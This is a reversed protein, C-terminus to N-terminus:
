ECLKFYEAFNDLTYAPGVCGFNGFNTQIEWEEASLMIADYTVGSTWYEEGDEVYDQICQVKCRVFTAKMDAGCIPCYPTEEYPKEYGDYSVTDPHEWGCATCKGDLWRGRRGPASNSAPFQEILRKGFDCITGASELKELLAKREVYEPAKQAAQKAKQSINRKM